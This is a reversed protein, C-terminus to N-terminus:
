IAAESNLIGAATEKQTRGGCKRSKKWLRGSVGGGEETSGAAGGDGSQAAAAAAM